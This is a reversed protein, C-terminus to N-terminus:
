AVDCVEKVPQAVYERVRYRAQGGLHNMHLCCERASEVSIFAYVAKWRKGKGEKREVVWVTM